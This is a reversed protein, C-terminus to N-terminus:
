RGNRERLWELRQQTRPGIPHGLLPATAGWAATVLVVLPDLASVAGEYHPGYAALAESTERALEGFLFLRNRLCALDWEPPGLCAEDFDLWLGGAQANGLHADGHVPQAALQPVNMCAASAGLVAGVEGGVLAGIRTAEPRPDFSRLTGDYRRAAHHLARLSAGAEAPTAAVAEVYAWFTVYRGDAAHPGPNVQDSPPVVLGPLARALAITGVVDDVPRILHAVRTVRAVIPSPRLHVVTSMGAALVVPDNCPIGFKGAAAVATQVFDPFAGGAFASTEEKM